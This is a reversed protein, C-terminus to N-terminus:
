SYSRNEKKDNQSDDYNIKEVQISDVQDPSVILPAVTTSSKQDSTSDTKFYSSEKQNDKGYYLKTM